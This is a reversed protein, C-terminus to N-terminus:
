HSRIIEKENKAVSTPYLQTIEHAQPQVFSTVYKELPLNFQNKGISIELHGSPHNTGSPHFCIEITDNSIFDTTPVLEVKSAAELSEKKHLLLKIKEPANVDSSLYVQPPHSNNIVVTADGRTIRAIMAAQQLKREIQQLVNKARREDYSQMFNITCVTGCIAILVLAIM